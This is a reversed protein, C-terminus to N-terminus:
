GGEDKQMNIAFLGWGSELTNLYERNEKRKRKGSEVTIALEGVSSIDVQSTTVM